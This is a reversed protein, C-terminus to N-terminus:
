LEYNYDTNSFFSSGTLEPKRAIASSCLKDFVEKAHVMKGIYFSSTHKAFKKKYLLLPDKDSPTNGGGLILSGIGKQASWKAVTYILYDNAGTVPPTSNAALFYYNALPHDIVLSTSCIKQSDKVEFIKFQTSKRVREFFSKSFYWIKSANIRDLSNIYVGLFEKLNKNSDQINLTCFKEAAKIDRKRSKSFEALQLDADKYTKTIVIEKALVLKVLDSDEFLLHNQLLPNFRIIEAIIKEERCFSSYITLADNLFSKDDTNLVPGSYGLFPEIDYFGTEQILQKSFTHFFAKDDLTILVAYWDDSYLVSLVEPTHFADLKSFDFYEYAQSPISAKQVFFQLSM